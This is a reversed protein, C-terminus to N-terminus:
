SPAAERWLFCCAPLWALLCVLLCAPLCAVAPRQNFPSPFWFLLCVTMKAQFRQDVLFRWQSERYWRARGPQGVGLGRQDRLQHHEACGNKSVRHTFGTCSHTRLAPLVVRTETKTEKPHSQCGLHIAQAVRPTGLVDLLWDKPSSQIHHFCKSKTRGQPLSDCALLSGEVKKPTGMPSSCCPM